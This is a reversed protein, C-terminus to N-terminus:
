PLLLLLARDETSNLRAKREVIGGGIKETTSLMCCIPHHLRSTYLTDGIRVHEVYLERLTSM